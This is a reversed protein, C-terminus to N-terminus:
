GKIVVIPRLRAVKLNIGAHHVPAIVLDIDKYAGPAEEAVGPISHARLTIGAKALATRVDEGWYKKKAKKRSMARGAGHIGSGFTKEM